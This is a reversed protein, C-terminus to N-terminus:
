GHKVLQRRPHCGALSNLCRPEPENFLQHLLFNWLDAIFVSCTATTSKSVFSLNRHSFWTNNPSTLSWSTLTRCQKCYVNEVWSTGSSNQLLIDWLPLQAVQRINQSVLFFWNVTVLVPFLQSKQAHSPRWSSVKSTRLSGCQLEPVLWLRSAGREVCRGSRSFRGSFAGWFFWIGLAFLANAQTICVGWPGWIPHPRLSKQSSPGSTGAAVEPSLVSPQDDRFLLSALLAPEENARDQEVPCAPNGVLKRDMGTRGSLSMCTM